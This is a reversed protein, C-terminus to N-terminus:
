FRRSIQSHHKHFLAVIGYPGSELAEMKGEPLQDSCNLYSNYNQPNALDWKSALMEFVFPTSPDESVSKIYISLRGNM